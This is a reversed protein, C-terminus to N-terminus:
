KAIYKMKWRATGVKKLLKKQTMKYIYRARLTNFNIGLEESLEVASKAEKSCLELIKLQLEEQNILFRKAM